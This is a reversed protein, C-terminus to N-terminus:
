VKLIAKLTEANRVANGDADNNFYAFVDFNMSDWENFRDAWWKLDNDSYFGSYLHEHSPGHFRVYVFQATARLICPLQAGSMVCYAVNYHNLLEFIDDRHWSSHRFEVAVKMWEPIQKLFYELRPYDYELSPPLQVLLVGRKDDLNILGRIIRKMWKEPAYLRSFHTLGRYAKITMIFENPVRRCWNAFTTDRAWHYYTSNVEVTYFKEVYYDLRRIKPIGEPYLVGEWHDYSWGSTGIYIGM